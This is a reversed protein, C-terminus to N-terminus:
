GAVPAGQNGSGDAEVIWTVGEGEKRKKNEVEGSTQMMGCEAKHCM